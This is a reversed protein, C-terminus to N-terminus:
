HLHRLPFNLFLGSSIGAATFGEAFCNYPADLGGGCFPSDRQSTSKLKGPNSLRVQKGSGVKRKLQHDDVDWDEWSEQFLGKDFRKKDGINCFSDAERKRQRANTGIHSNSTENAWVSLYCPCHRNM